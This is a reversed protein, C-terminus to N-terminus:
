LEGASLIWEKMKPTLRLTFSAMSQFLKQDEEVSAWGRIGLGLGLDRFRM